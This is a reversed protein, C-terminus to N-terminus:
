GITDPTSDQNKGKIGCFKEEWKKRDEEPM